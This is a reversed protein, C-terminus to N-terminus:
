WQVCYSGDGTATDAMGGYSISRHCYPPKPVVRLLYQSLGFCISSYMLLTKAM